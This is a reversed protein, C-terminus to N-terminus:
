TTAPSLGPEFSAFASFSSVSIRSSAPRRASSPHGCPTGSSMSYLPEPKRPQAACGPRRRVYYPLALGSAASATTRRSGTCSLTAPRVSLPTCASPWTALKAVSASTLSSRARRSFPTPGSSMAIVAAVADVVAEVSAAAGPGAAVEVAYQGARRGAGKSRSRARQHGCRYSRSARCAHAAASGPVWSKVAKVGVCVSWTRKSRSTREAAQVCAPSMRLMRPTRRGAAKVKMRLVTTKADELDEHAMRLPCRRQLGELKLCSSVPAGRSAAPLVRGM